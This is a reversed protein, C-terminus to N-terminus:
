VVKVKYGLLKELEDLTVEKVPPEKKVPNKRSQVEALWENQGSYKVGDLWYEVEQSDKAAIVVAPGALDSLMGNSYKKTTTIGDKTVTETVFSNYKHVDAKIDFLDFISPLLTHAYNM